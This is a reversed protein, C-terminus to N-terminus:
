KRIPRPCLLRAVLRHLDDAFPPRRARDFEAVLHIAVAHGCAEVVGVGVFTTFQKCSAADADCGGLKRDHDQLESRVQRGQLVWRSSSSPSVNPTLTVSSASRREVDRDDTGARRAERRSHRRRM